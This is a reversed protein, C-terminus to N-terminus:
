SMSSSKLSMKREQEDRRTDTYRVGKTFPWNDFIHAQEALIDMFM